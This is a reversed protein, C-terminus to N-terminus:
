IKYTRFLKIEGLNNLSIKALSTKCWIGVGGWWLVKFINNFQIGVQMIKSSNDATMRVKTGTYTIHRKERIAKFIKEENSIKLFKIIINM